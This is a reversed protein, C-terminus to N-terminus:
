VSSTSDHMTSNPVSRLHPLGVFAEKEREMRWSTSSRSAVPILVGGCSVGGGAGSYAVGQLLLNLSRVAVLNSVRTPAEAVRVGLTTHGGGGVDDQRQPVRHHGRARGGRADRHARM